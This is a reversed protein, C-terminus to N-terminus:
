YCERLADYADVIGEPDNGKISSLLARAATVKAERMSDEGSNDVLDGENNMEDDGYPTPGILPGTPKKEGKM